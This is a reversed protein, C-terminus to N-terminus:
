PLEHIHEIRAQTYLEVADPTYGLHATLADTTDHVSIHARPNRPRHDFSPLFAIVCADATTRYLETLGPHRGKKALSTVAVLEGHFRVPRPHRNTDIPWLVIPPADLPAGRHELDAFAGSPNAALLAGRYEPKYIAEMALAEVTPFHAIQACHGGRISEIVYRGAATRYLNVLTTNDNAAALTVGTFGVPRANAPYLVYRQM